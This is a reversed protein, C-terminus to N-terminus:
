KQQLGFTENINGFRDRVSSPLTGSDIAVTAPATATDAVPLDVDEVVLAGEIAKWTPEIEGSRPGDGITEIVEYEFGNAVTPSVRDGVSRPVSAQWFPAPDTARSPKFALGNAVTPETVAGASVISNAKWSGNSQLWYHWVAGSQFQAVVYLFGLYADAFHIEHLLEGPDDPNMLVAVKFLPDAVTEPKNSFTWLKNQFSVIGETTAPLTAVYKTGPRPKVSRSATVFANTLDFLSRESANSKERLRTIGSTLNGLQVPRM